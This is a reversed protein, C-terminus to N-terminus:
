ENDFDPPLKVRFDKFDQDTAPRLNDHVSIYRPGNAPNYSSGRIVSSALIGVMCPQVTRYGLMNENIVVYKM